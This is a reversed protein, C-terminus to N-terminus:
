SLLVDLKAKCLELLSPEQTFFTPQTSHLYVNVERVAKNMVAKCGEISAENMTSQKENQGSILPMESVSFGTRLLKTKM